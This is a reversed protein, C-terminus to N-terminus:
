GALPSAEHILPVQFGSTGLQIRSFKAREGGITSLCAERRM